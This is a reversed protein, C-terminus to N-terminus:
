HDGWRFEKITHRWWLVSDGGEIHIADENNNDPTGCEGRNHEEPLCPAEVMKENASSPCRATHQEYRESKEMIEKEWTSMKELLSIKEKIDKGPSSLIVSVKTKTEELSLCWPIKELKSLIKTVSGLCDIKKEIGQYPRCLTEVIENKMTPSTLYRGTKEVLSKKLKRLREMESTGVEELSKVKEEVNRGSSLLIELIKKKVEESSLYRPIEVEFKCLVDALPKLCNIRDETDEKDLCLKGVIEREMEASAVVKGIQQECERLMEVLVKKLLSLAGEIGKNSSFLIESIKEVKEASMYCFINDFKSLMGTVRTLREVNQQLSGGPLHLAELIQDKMSPSSAYRGLNQECRELQEKLKKYSIEMNELLRVKEQIDKGSSCLIESIEKKAEESCLYMPVEIELKQLADVLPKINKLREEVDEKKFCFTDVFERAATPFSAYRGIFQEYERLKEMLKKQRANVEKLLSIKEDISKNSSHLIEYLTKERWSLCELIEWKKLKTEIEEVTLTASRKENIELLHASRWIEECLAKVGPFVEDRLHLVDNVKEMIDAKSPSRNETEWEELCKLEAAFWGKKEIDYKYHQLTNRLEDVELMNLKEEFSKNPFNLIETIRDKNKKLITYSPIEELKSLMRTVSRLCEVKEETSKDSSFLVESIIKKTDELRLYSPIEVGWKQLVDAVPKVSKLVEETDEKDLCLMDIIERQMKPSAVCEGINEVCERLEEMLKKQSILVGELMTLAQGAETSSNIIKSIGNEGKKSKLYKPFEKELKLLIEVALKLCNVREEIGEKNLCLAEIIESATTECDVCRAVEKECKRLEKEMMKKQYTEVKGLRVFKWDLSGTSFLILSIENKGKASILYSPIKSRLEHLFEATRALQKLKEDNELGPPFCVLQSISKGDRPPNVFTKIEDELRGMLGRQEWWTPIRFLWPFVSAAVAGAM